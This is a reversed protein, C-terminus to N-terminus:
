PMKNHQNWSWVKLRFYYSFLSKYKNPKQFSFERVLFVYYIASSRLVMGTCYTSQLLHAHLADVFPSTVVKVVAGDTCDFYLIQVWYIIYYQAPSIDLICVYNRNWILIGNYHFHLCILSLVMSLHKILTM